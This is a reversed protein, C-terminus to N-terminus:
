GYFIRKQARSSRTTLKRVSWVQARQLQCHTGCHRSKPSRLAANSSLLALTKTAFHAMTVSRAWHLVEVEVPFQVKDTFITRGHM